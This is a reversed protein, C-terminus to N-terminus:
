QKIVLGKQDKFYEREFEIEIWESGNHKWLTCDDPIVEINYDVKHASIKKYSAKCKLASIAQGRNAHIKFSPSRYPIYTAWIKNEKAIENPNFKM